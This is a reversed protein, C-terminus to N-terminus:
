AAAGERWAATGKCSPCVREGYHHSVFNEGCMLCRRKKHQEPRDSTPKKNDSSRSAM